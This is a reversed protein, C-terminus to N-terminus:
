SATRQCLLGLEVYAKMSVVGNSAIRVIIGMDAVEPPRRRPAIYFTDEEGAVVFVGLGQGWAQQMLEEAAEEVSSTSLQWTREPTENPGSAPDGCQYEDSSDVLTAGRPGQRFVALQALQEYVPGYDYSPPHRTEYLGWLLWVGLLVAGSVTIVVATNRLRMM